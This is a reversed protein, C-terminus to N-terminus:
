FPKANVPKLDRTRKAQSRLIKSNEANHRTTKLYVLKRQRKNARNNPYFEMIKACHNRLIRRHVHQHSKSVEAHNCLSLSCHFQSTRRLLMPFLNLFRRKHLKLNNEKRQKTSAVTKALFDPKDKEPRSPKFLTELKKKRTVIMVTEDEKVIKQKPFLKKQKMNQDRFNLIEDGNQLFFVM